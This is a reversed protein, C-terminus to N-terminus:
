VHAASVAEERIDGFPLTEESDDGGTEDTGDDVSGYIHAVAATAMDVDEQDLADIRKQTLEAPLVPGCSAFIARIKEVTSCDIDCGQCVARFREWAAILEPDPAPKQRVPAEGACQKGHKKGEPAHCNPCQGPGEWVDSAAPATRTSAATTAPPTPAPGTIQRPAHGNTGNGAPLAQRESRETDGAIQPAAHAPPLAAYVEAPTMKVRIVPVPFRNTKGDRKVTRQEIALSAPIRIGQNAMNLLEQAVAPLEVAAYYGHSELRWVGLGPLEYLLISMRTTPKCERDEPDCECDGGTIENRRGDCRRKCGGGSWTEYWQSIPVPSVFFPIEEAEVYLEFQGKEAAWPRVKGGYLAAAQELVHRDPSTLRVKNLRRPAGNDAKDGLRIRGVERLRQQLNIIGM